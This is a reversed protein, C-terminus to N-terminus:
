RDIANLQSLVAENRVGMTRVRTCGAMETAENTITTREPPVKSESNTANSFTSLM